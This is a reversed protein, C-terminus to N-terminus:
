INNLLFKMMAAVCLCVHVDTVSKGALESVTPIGATTFLGMEVMKPLRFVSSCMPRAFPWACLVSSTSDATCAQM